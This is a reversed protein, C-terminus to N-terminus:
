YPIHANKEATIQAPTLAQNFIKAYAIYQWFYRGSNNDYWRGININHTGRYGTSDNRTSNFSGGNVSIKQQTGDWVYAIHEWQNQSATPGNLDRAWFGFYYRGHRITCHLCDGNSHGIAGFIAYDHGTGRIPNYYVWAMMTFHSNAIGQNGGTDLWNSGIERVENLFYTGSFTYPPNVNVNNFDELSIPGSTKNVTSRFDSDNLSCTTESNEGLAIHINNMSIPKTIITM